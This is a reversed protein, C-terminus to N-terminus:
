KGNVCICKVDVSNLLLKFTKAIGECVAKKKFLIGLITAVYSSVAPDINLTPLADYDYSTRSILLDYMRKVKQYDSCGELKAQNIISAAYQKARDLFLRCVDMDFNYEPIIFMGNESQIMTIQRTDLYFLLPNDETLADIVQVIDDQFYQGFPVSIKNQHM